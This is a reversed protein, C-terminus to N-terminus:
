PRSRTGKISKAKTPSAGKLSTRGYTHEALLVGSKDFLWATDGDNNWVNRKTWVLDGPRDPTTGSVVRFPGPGIVAGFRYSQDGRVSVLLGGALSGAEAQIEVFEVRGDNHVSLGPSAATLSMPMSVFLSTALLLKLM